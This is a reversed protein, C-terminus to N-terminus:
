SFNNNFVRVHPSYDECTVLCALVRQCAWLVLNIQSDKTKNKKINITIIIIIIIIIM